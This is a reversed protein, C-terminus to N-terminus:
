LRCGERIETGTEINEFTFVLRCKRRRKSTVTMRQICTRQKKFVPPWLEKFGPTNAYILEFPVECNISVGIEAQLMSVMMAAGNLGIVDCRTMNRSESLVNLGRM